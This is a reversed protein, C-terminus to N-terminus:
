SAPAKVLGYITAPRSCASLLRAWRARLLGTSQQTWCRHAQEASVQPYWWSLGLPWVPVTRESARSSNRHSCRLNPALRRPLLLARALVVAQAVALPQLLPQGAPARARLVLRWGPAQVRVTPPKPPEGYAASRWARPCREWCQHRWQCAAPCVAPPWLQMLPPSAAPCGRGLVRFGWGLVRLGLILQRRDQPQTLTQVRWALPTVGRRRRAPGRHQVAQRPGQGEQGQRGQGQRGQGRQRPHGQGQLGQRTAQLRRALSGGRWCRGRGRRRRRKRHGQRWCM